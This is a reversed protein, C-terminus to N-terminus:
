AAEAAAEGICAELEAAARADARADEVLSRASRTTGDALTIDIDGLEELVREFEKAKVPDGLPQEAQPQEQGGAPQRQAEEGVQRAGEVDRQELGPRSRKALEGDGDLLKETRTNTDIEAADYLLGEESKLKFYTSRPKNGVGELYDSAVIRGTVLFRKIMRRYAEEPEVVINVFGVRYGLKKLGEVIARMKDVDAGVKPLV